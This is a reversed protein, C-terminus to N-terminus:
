RLMGRCCGTCSREEFGNWSLPPIWETIIAESGRRNHREVFAWPTKSSSDTTIHAQYYTLAIGAQLIPPILFIVPDANSEFGHLLVFLTESAPNVKISHENLV